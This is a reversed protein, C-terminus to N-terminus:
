WTGNFSQQIGRKKEKEKICTKKSDRKMWGHPSWYNHRLVIM